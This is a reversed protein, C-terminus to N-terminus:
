GDGAEKNANLVAAAMGFAEGLKQAEAKQGAAIQLHVVAEGLRILLVNQVERMAEQSKLVATIGTFLEGILEGVAEGAAEVAEDAAKEHEANVIRRGKSQGNGNGNRGHGVTVVKRRRLSRLGSRAPRRDGM